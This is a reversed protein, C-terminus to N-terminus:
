SSRYLFLTVSARQILVDNRAIDKTYFDDKERLSQYHGMIPNHQELYFSYVDRLNTWYTEIQLQKPRSFSRMDEEHQPYFFTAQM